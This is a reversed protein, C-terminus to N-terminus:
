KKEHLCLNIFINRNKYQATPRDSFYHFHNSKSQNYNKEHYVRNLVEPLPACIGYWSVSLRFSDCLYHSEFHKRCEQANNWQFSLDENHLIFSYNEALDFLIIYEHINLALIFPWSNYQYTHVVHHFRYTKL